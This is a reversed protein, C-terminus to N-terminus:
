RGHSEEIRETREIKMVRLLIQIAEHIRHIESSPLHEIYRILTGFSSIPVKEVMRRGRPTANLRVVRRDESGRRRVVYGKRELRDVIGSCTSIHLHMREGLEGLSIGPYRAIVMLAGAQPGTMRYKKMLNSSYRRHVDKILRVASIIRGIESRRRSMSETRGRVAM